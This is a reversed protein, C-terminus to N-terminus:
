PALFIDNEDSPLETGRYTDKGKVTFIDDNLVIRNNNFLASGGSFLVNQGRGKHNRSMISKLERTLMIKTFEDPSNGKTTINEFIPNSDAMFATLYGAKQRKVAKDCMVMFSYNVNKRSPFDNLTKVIDPPLDIKQSDKNGPCVFEEGKLYGDKVLLWVHRTNSQNKDGQDGVKWWPAGAQVPVTPLSGNNSSAYSAMANGVGAMNAACRVKWSNQRVNSLAPYGLLCVLTLMAAAAATDTIRRWFTRSTTVKSSTSVANANRQEDALLQNLKKQST